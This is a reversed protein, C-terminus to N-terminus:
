VHKGDDSSAGGTRTQDRVPPARLLTILDAEVVCACVIVWRAMSFIPGVVGIDRASSAWRSNRNPDLIM